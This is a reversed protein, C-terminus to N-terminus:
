NKLLNKIITATEKKTVHKKPSEENAMVAQSVTKVPAIKPVPPNVAVALPATPADLRAQEQALMADLFGSCDQDQDGLRVSGSLLARGNSVTAQLPDDAVGVCPIGEICLYLRFSRTANGELLVDASVKILETTLPGVDLGSKNLFVNPNDSVRFDNANSAVDNILLLDVETRLGLGAPAPDCVLLYSAKAGM